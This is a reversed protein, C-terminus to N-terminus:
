PQGAVADTQRVLRVRLVDGQGLLALLAAPILFLGAGTLIVASSWVRRVTSPATIQSHAYLESHPFLRKWCSLFLSAPSFELSFSRSEALLFGAEAAASSLGQRTFHVLHRPCDLHFWHGGFARALPSLLPVEVFLQGGADLLRYADALVRRPDSMHELSHFFCVADFSAPPWSTLAEPGVRVVVGPVERVQAAAGDSIETAAVQFGWSGLTQVMRGRGCGVDLIRGGAVTNRAVWRARADRFRRVAGEITAVFKRRGAGHYSGAAHSASLDDASPVLDLTLSACSRCVLVAREEGEAPVRFGLGLDGGCARCQEVHSAILL